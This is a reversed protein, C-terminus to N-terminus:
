IALKRKRVENTLDKFIPYEVEIRGQLNAEDMLIDAEQEAYYSAGDSAYAAYGYAEIAHLHCLFSYNRKLMKITNLLHRDTMDCINIEVGERTKWKM